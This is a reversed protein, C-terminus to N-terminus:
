KKGIVSALLAKRILIWREVVQDQLLVHKTKNGLSLSEMNVSINRDDNNGIEEVAEVNEDLSSFTFSHTAVVLVVSSKNFGFKLLTNM